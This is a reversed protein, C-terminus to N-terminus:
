GTEVLSTKGKTSTVAVRAVLKEETLPIQLSVVVGCSGAV